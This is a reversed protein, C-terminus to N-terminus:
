LVVMANATSSVGGRLNLPVSVFFFEWRNRIRAEAVLRRLDLLELFSLGLAPLSRRHLSGHKPDGPGPEISPNDSGLLAVGTDWLFEAMTTSGELGTWAALLAPDQHKVYAECWGTHVLLIDGEGIQVGQQSAVERLEDVSLSRPQFPDAEVVTMDLLVARGAIGKEAFHHIGVNERALELETSGDFFGFERARVHALGDLQSSSQPNFQHLLDEAENRNPQLVEHVVPARNFLPPDFADLPLNLPITIGERVLTSAKRVHAPTILSLTGLSAPLEDRAHRVDLGGLFPLESFSKRGTM